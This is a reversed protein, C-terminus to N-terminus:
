ASDVVRHGEMAGIGEQHHNNSNSGIGQDTSSRSFPRSARIIKIAPPHPCNTQYGTSGAHFREQQYIRFLDPDLHEILEPFSLSSHPCSIRQCRFKWCGQNKNWILAAVKETRKYEPKRTSSCFPCPSVWKPNEQTGKLLPEKFYKELILERYKKDIRSEHYM